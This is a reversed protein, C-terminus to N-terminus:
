GKKALLFSQTVGNGETDRLTLVCHLQTVSEAPAVGMYFPLSGKVYNQAPVLLKNDRAIFDQTIMYNAARGQVNKRPEPSLELPQGGTEDVTIEFTNVVSNREGKNELTLWLLLFTGLIQGGMIHVYFGSGNEPHLVLEATKKKAAAQEELEHIRKKQVGYLRYPALLWSIIALVVPISRPVTVGRVYLPVFTALTSVAGLASWLGGWWTAFLQVLYTIFNKM